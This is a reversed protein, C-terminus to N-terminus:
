SKLRKIGNKIKGHANSCKIKNYINNNNNDNGNDNNNDNSNNNIKGVSKNAL